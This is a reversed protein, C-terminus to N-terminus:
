SVQSCESKGAEIKQGKIEVLMPVADVSKVLLVGSRGIRDSFVVHRHPVSEVTIFIERM